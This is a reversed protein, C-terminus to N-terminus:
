SKSNSKADDKIEGTAKDTHAALIEAEATDDALEGSLSEEGDIYDVKDDRIVAQDVGLAKQLTIDLPGNKSVNLKMVTKKAMADFNDKWPGYGSKYAQSYQKAHERVEDVTWYWTSEFGNDLRFFSFYGIVPLKNRIEDNEIWQWEVEGTLRNRSKVEGDHVEGENIIKYRGSRQALEKFGRAGMQFQAEVQGGKRNNKYGIIHAFGLSKSIPLNMSAATLAANFLSRPEANALLEDQGALSIISTTFNRIAEPTVLMEQMKKTVAPASIYEKITINGGSKAAPLNSM